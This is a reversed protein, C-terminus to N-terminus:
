FAKPFAHVWESLDLQFTIFSFFFVFFFVKDSFRIMLCNQVVVIYKKSKGSVIMIWKFSSGFHFFTSSWSSLKNVWLFFFAVLLLCRILLTKRKRWYNFAKGIYAFRQQSNERMFNLNIPAKCSSCRNATRQFSKIIFWLPVMFFSKVQPFNRELRSFVSNGVRRSKKKHVRM